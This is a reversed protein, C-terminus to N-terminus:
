HAFVLPDKDTVCQYDNVPIRTGETAPRQCFPCNPWPNAYPSEGGHKDLNVQQYSCDPNTCVHLFNDYFYDRGGSNWYRCELTLRRCKPCKIRGAVIVRQTM